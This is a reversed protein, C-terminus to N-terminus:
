SEVQQACVNDFEAVINVEMLEAWTKLDAGHGWPCRM